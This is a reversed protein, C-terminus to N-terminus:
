AETMEEEPKTGKLVTPNVGRDVSDTLVVDPSCLDSELESSIATVGTAEVSSEVGLKEVVSSCDRRLVARDVPPLLLTM